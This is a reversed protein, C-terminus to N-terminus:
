PEMDMAQTVMSGRAVSRLRPRPGFPAYCRGCTRTALTRPRWSCSTLRARPQTSTLPSRAHGWDVRMLHRPTVCSHMLWLPCDTPVSVNSLTFVYNQPIILKSPSGKKVQAGTTACMHIITLTISPRLRFSGVSVM